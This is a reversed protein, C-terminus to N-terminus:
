LSLNNMTGELNVVVFYKKEWSAPGELKTAMRLVIEDDVKRRGERKSNRELISALSDTM